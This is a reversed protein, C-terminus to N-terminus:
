ERALPKTDSIRAPPPGVRQANHPVNPGSPDYELLWNANNGQISSSREPGDEGGKGREPITDAVVSPRSARHARGVPTLSDEDDAAAGVHGVGSAASASRCDAVILRPL